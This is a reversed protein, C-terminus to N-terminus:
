TTLGHLPGVNFLKVTTGTTKAPSEAAVDMESKMFFYAADGSHVAATYSYPTPVKTTAGAM